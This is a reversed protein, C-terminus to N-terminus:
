EPAIFRRPLFSYVLQAFYNRPVRDGAIGYREPMRGPDYFTGFLVDMLPNLNAFNCSGNREVDHHWHHLRPSGLFYKLAGMGTNTNSHIFNGWLGRFVVFSAIVDFSFGLLLAPLNVVLRTYINDLPHERFAAAWDLHISTHHVRHFRWLFENAHSFRHAWYILFDSALVVGIIQLPMPWAAFTAQIGGNWNDHLYLHLAGLILLTAKSFILSQGIYFFFDTWLQRRFVPQEHAAFVRELPGLAVGLIVFYLAVDLAENWFAAM